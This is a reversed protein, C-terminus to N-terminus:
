PLSGTVKRWNASAKTTGTEVPLPGRRNRAKLCLASYILHEKVCLPHSAAVMNSFTAHMANAPGVNPLPTTPYFDAPWHSFKITQIKFITSPLFSWVPLDTLSARLLGRKLHAQTM